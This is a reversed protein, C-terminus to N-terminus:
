IHIPLLWDRGRMDEVAEALADAQHLDLLEPGDFRRQKQGVSERDAGAARREDAMCRPWIRIDAALGRGHIRHHEFAVVAEEVVDLSHRDRLGIGVAASSHPTPPNRIRSPRRRSRCSRKPKLPPM